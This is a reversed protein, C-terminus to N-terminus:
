DVPCAHRPLRFASAAALNVGYGLDQLAALTLVSIPNVRGTYDGATGSLIESCVANGAWHGADPDLPIGPTAQGGLARYAALGRPATYYYTRGVKRIFRTDDQDGSISVRTDSTWLTGVGLAHLTEHIMTDLLDAHSLDNLGTSNLDILAYIPLYTGDHLDCPTSDAYLDRGLRTVNVYIILHRALEHVAPLARDCARADEDVQVPVFSSTILSSVRTMAEDVTKRQSSTLPRGLMRVEIQFPTAAAWGWALGLGM